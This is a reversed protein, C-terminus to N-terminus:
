NGGAQPDATLFALRRRREVHEVRGVVFDQDDTAFAVASSAIAASSAAAAACAPQAAVGGRSRPSIRRETKSFIVSRASSMAVNIVSSIPLTSGSLMPSTLYPESNKRQNASSATRM